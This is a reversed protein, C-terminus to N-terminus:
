NIVMTATARQAFRGNGDAGILGGILPVIIDSRYSLTIRVLCGERTDLTCTTDVDTTDPCDGDPTTVHDCYSITLDGNVQGDGLPMPCADTGNLTTTFHPSSVSLFGLSQRAAEVVDGCREADNWAKTHSNDYVYITGARAAERTANTLTVNAGFLLGFQVVGVVLLLVPMLVAAFEVLAQGREDGAHRAGQRRWMVRRPAPVRAPLPFRGSGHLTPRARRKRFLARGPM